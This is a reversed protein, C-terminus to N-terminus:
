QKDPEPHHTLGAHNLFSRELWRQVGYGDYWRVITTRAADYRYRHVFVPPGPYRSDHTARTGHSRTYERRLRSLTNSFRDDMRRASATQCVGFCNRLNWAAPGQWKGFRTCAYVVLLQLIWTAACSDYAPEHQVQYQSRKSFVTSATRAWAHASIPKTM